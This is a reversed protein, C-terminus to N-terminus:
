CVVMVPFMLKLISLVLNDGSSHRGASIDHTCDSVAFLLNQLWILKSGVHHFSLRNQKFVRCMGPNMV